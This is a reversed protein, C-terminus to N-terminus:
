TVVAVMIIARGQRVAHLRQADKRVVEEVKAISKADLALKGRKNQTLFWTFLDRQLRPDYPGPTPVSFM